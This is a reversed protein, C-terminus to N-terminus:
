PTHSPVRYRGSHRTLVAVLDLDQRSRFLVQFGQLMVRRLGDPLNEPEFLVWELSMRDLSVQAPYSRELEIQLAPSRITGDVRDNIPISDANDEEDTRVLVDVLHRLSSPYSHSLPQLVGSLDPRYGPAASGEVLSRCPTRVRRAPMRAAAGVDTLAQRNM